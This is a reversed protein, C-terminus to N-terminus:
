SSQQLRITLMACCLRNNQGCIGNAIVCLSRFPLGSVGVLVEPALLHSSSDPHALSETPDVQYLCVVFVQCSDHLQQLSRERQHAFARPQYQACGDQHSSRHEDGRGGQPINISDFSTMYGAASLRCLTIYTTFPLARILHPSFSSYVASAPGPSKMYTGGYTGTLTSKGALTFLIVGRINRLM